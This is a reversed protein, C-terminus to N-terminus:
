LLEREADEQKEKLKKNLAQVSMFGEEDEEDLQPTRWEIRHTSNKLALVFILAVTGMIFAVISILCFFLIIAITLEISM